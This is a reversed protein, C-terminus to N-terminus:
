KSDNEAAYIGGIALRFFFQPFGLVITSCKASNTSFSGGSRDIPAWDPGPGDISKGAKKRGLAMIGVGPGQFRTDEFGGGFCGKKEKVRLGPRNGMLDAM